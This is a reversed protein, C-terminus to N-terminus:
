FKDISYVAPKMDDISTLTLLQPKVMDQGGYLGDNYTNTSSSYEITSTTFEGTANQVLTMVPRATEISYIVSPSIGQSQSPLPLFFLLLSM